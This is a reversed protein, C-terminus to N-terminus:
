WRRTLRWDRGGAHDTGRAPDDAQEARRRVITSEIGHATPGGDVVLPIARWTGEGCGPQVPPSFRGFVIRARRRSLSELLRAVERFVPDREHAGAVTRWGPPSSTRCRAVLTASCSPSRDRALFCPLEEVLVFVDDQQAVRGAV